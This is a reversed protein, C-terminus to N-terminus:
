RHQIRERLLRKAEEYPIAPADGADYAALRRRNELLVSDPVLDDFEDERITEAILAILALQESRTLRYVQELVDEFHKSM